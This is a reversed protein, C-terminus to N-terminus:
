EKMMNKPITKMTLATGFLDFYQTILENHAGTFYILCFAQLTNPPSVFMIMQLFHITSM